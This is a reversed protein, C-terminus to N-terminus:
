SCYNGKYNPQCQAINPVQRSHVCSASSTEACRQAGTGGHVMGAGQEHGCRDLLLGTSPAAHACVCFGAALWVRPAPTPSFPSGLSQHLLPLLSCCRRGVRQLGIQIHKQETSWPQDGGWPTALRAQTQLILLVALSRLPFPVALCPLALCPLCFPKLFYSGETKGPEISTPASITERPRALSIISDRCMGDPFVAVQTRQHPRLCFNHRSSEPWSSSFHFPM